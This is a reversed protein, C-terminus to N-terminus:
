LESPSVTTPTCAGSNENARSLPLLRHSMDSMSRRNSATVYAGGIARTPASSPLPACHSCLRSESM